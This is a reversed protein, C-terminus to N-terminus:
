QGPDHPAAVRSSRREQGWDYLRLACRDVAAVGRIVHAAWRTSDTAARGADPMAPRLYKVPRSAARSVARTTVSGPRKTSTVLHVASKSTWTAAAVPPLPRLP